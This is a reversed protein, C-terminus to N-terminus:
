LIQEIAQQGQCVTVGLDQLFQQDTENRRNGPKHYKRLHPHYNLELVWPQDKEDVVYDLGLICFQDTCDKTDLTDLVQSLCDRIINKMRTEIAEFRQAGLAQVMEDHFLMAKSDDYQPHHCQVHINCLHVMLDDLSEAAPSYQEVNRRAYAFRYFVRQEVIVVYARVDFKRGGILLPQRIYTQAIYDYGDDRRADMLSQLKQSTNAIAIGKACTSGIPKVIWIARNEVAIHSRMSFDVKQREGRVSLDYTLPMIDARKMTNQIFQPLRQKNCLIHQAPHEAALCRGELVILKIKHSYFLFTKKEKVAARVMEEHKQRTKDLKAQAKASRGESSVYKYRKQKKNTKTKPM